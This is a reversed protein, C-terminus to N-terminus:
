GQTCRATETSGVSRGLGPRALMSAHGIGELTQDAQEVELGDLDVDETARRGVFLADPHEAALHGALRQDRGRARDVVLVSPDVRQVSVEQAGAVRGRRDEVLDVANAVPATEGSAAHHGDLVTLGDEIQLGAEMREFFTQRM